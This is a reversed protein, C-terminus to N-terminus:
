SITEGKIWAAVGRMFVLCDSSLAPTTIHWFSSLDTASKKQFLLRRCKIPMRLDSKIKLWDTAWLPPPASGIRGWELDALTNNNAACAKWGDSKEAVTSSAVSCRAILCSAVWLASSLTHQRHLHLCAVSCFKFDYYEFPVKGSIDSGCKWCRSRLCVFM